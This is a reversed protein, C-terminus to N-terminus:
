FTLSSLEEVVFPHSFLKEWSIRKEEDFEMMKGILDIINKYTSCYFHKPFTLSKKDKM